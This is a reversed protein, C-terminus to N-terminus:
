ILAELADLLTDADQRTNYGQISVRVITWDKFPHVPVEVRFQNYLDVKLQDANVTGPLPIAVMQAFFDDEAYPQVNLRDCARHLTEIALNHCQKRVDDWCHERQFEIASPVTLYASVDRTGQWVTRRFM